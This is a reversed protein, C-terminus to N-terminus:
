IQKMKKRIEFIQRFMKLTVTCSFLLFLIFLYIIYGKISTNLVLVDRTAIEFFDTFFLISYLAGFFGVAVLMLKLFKKM